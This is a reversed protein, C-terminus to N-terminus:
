TDLKEVTIAGEPCVLACITCGTCAGLDVAAVPFYGKKNLASEKELVTKKPCFHLCYECEKCLERDVRININQMKKVEPLIRARTYKDLRDASQACSDYMSRFEYRWETNTFNVKNCEISRWEL